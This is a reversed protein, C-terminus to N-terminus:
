NTKKNSNTCGFWFTRNRLSRHNWTHRHLPNRIPLIFIWHWHKVSVPTRRDARTDSIDIPMYNIIGNHNVNPINPPYYNPAPRQSPSDINCYCLMSLLRVSPRMVTKESLARDQPHHFLRIPSWLVWVFSLFWSWATLSCHFSPESCVTAWMCWFHRLACGNPFTWWSSKPNYKLTSFHLIPWITWVFMCTNTRNFGPQKIRGQMKNM